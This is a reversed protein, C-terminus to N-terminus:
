RRRQQLVVTGISRKTAGSGAFVHAPVRRRRSILALARRSLRIGAKKTKGPRLELVGRGVVFKKQLRLPGRCLAEASEGVCGVSVQARGDSVPAQGSMLMLRGVGGVPLTPKSQVFDTSGFRNAAAVLVKIPHGVDEPGLRLEPGEVGQITLCLNLSVSCRYWRYRYETPQQAWTGVSAALVQGEWPSGNVSPPTINEPIPLGPSIRGIKDAYFETFWMYGDPGLAIGRPQRSFQQNGEPVVTDIPFYSVKGSQGIREIADNLNTFWVEGYPGAAMDGGLGTTPAEFEEVKGDPTVRGVQYKLGETFWISGDVAATIGSPRAEETPVPFETIAGRTTIRGIKNGRNETFWLNGDPAVTIREPWSNPTPVMWEDIQGAPTIRGIKNAQAETFWLNGDQGAVIGTPESYYDPLEFRTVAGLRTMRGIAGWYRETIWLNGDPGAAIGELNRKAGPYEFEEVEGSTTMSVVRGDWETFWLKGEPGSVIEFPQSKWNHTPVPFETIKGLPESPLTAASATPGALAIVAVVAGLAPWLAGARPVM